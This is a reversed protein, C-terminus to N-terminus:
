ISELERVCSRSKVTDPHDKGLKSMRISLSKRYEVLAEDHKGQKKLVTGINIYSTATDPHDKGHKSEWIALCKRYVVLAEDYKEQARLVNGVNNYSRATGPHDKGHNSERIVLGRHYMVLAEDYKGQNYLVAGISSYSKATSLHDKGLKSERIALSKRFEVLAEDHKGQNKLASGISNYASATDPHDKGFNAEQIALSKRYEVLAEDHKGQYCNFVWGISNYSTATDPHNKGLKTERIALGERFQVLAGDHEGNDLMMHGVTDCFNAHELLKKEAGEEVGLAAAERGRREALGHIVDFVWRRLLANVGNNLEQHGPGAAVQKLIATKDAEVSAEADEIRTAGFVKFVAEIGGGGDVVDAEFAKMEAPPMVIDVKCKDAGLKTATFMEFVCWIRSLYLPKDWPAMMALVHGIETVKPEFEAMFAETSVVEGAAQSEKVRHQNVCMCCIWIYTRKPDLEAARCHEVLTAVIDGVTYGWSYSIMQTAKGVADAGGEVAHVLAAGPRRDVPCLTGASKRRIVAPEIQYVKATAPDLGAGEVWSLLTTALFAVSLGLFPLDAAAIGTHCPGPSPARCETLVWQWVAISAEPAM